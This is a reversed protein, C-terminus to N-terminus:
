ASIPLIPLSSGRLRRWIFSPPTRPVPDYIRDREFRCLRVRVSLRRRRWATDLSHNIEDFDGFVTKQIGNEEWRNTKKHKRRRKVEKNKRVNRAPCAIIPSRIETSSFLTKEKSFRSESQTACSDYKPLVFGEATPPLERPIVYFAISCANWNFSKFLPNRVQVFTPFHVSRLRLYRYSFFIAFARTKYNTLLEFILIM